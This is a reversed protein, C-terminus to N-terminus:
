QPGTSSVSSSGPASSSSIIILPRRRCPPGPCTDVPAPAVTAATTRPNPLEPPKSSRVSSFSRTPQQRSRESSGAASHGCCFRRLPVRSEVFAAAHLESLGVVRHHEVPQPRRRRFCPPCPSQRRGAGCDSSSLPPLDLCSTPPVTTRPNPLEPLKSGLLFISTPQEVSSLRYARLEYRGLTQRPTGVAFGSFLCGVRLSHQLEPLGDVRHHENRISCPPIAITM